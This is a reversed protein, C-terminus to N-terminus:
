FWEGETNYSGVAELGGSRWGMAVVTVLGHVLLYQSSINRTWFFVIQHM